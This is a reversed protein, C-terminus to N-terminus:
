ETEMRKVTRNCFSVYFVEVVIIYIMIVKIVNKVVFFTSTNVNKVTLNRTIEVNKCCKM